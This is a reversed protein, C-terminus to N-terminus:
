RRVGAKKLINRETGIKLDRTHFPVIVTINTQANYYKRHSGANGPIHRFGNKELLKGMEKPTLPMM